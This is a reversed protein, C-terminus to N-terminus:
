GDVRHPWNDGCTGREQSASTVAQALDRYPVEERFTARLLNGSSALDTERASDLM